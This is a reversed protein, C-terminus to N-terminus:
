HLDFLFLRCVSVLCRVSRTQMKGDPVGPHTNRCALLLLYELSEGLRITRGRPFYPPVPSPSVMHERSTSNIPPRMQTSLSGSCPLAKWKVRRRATWFVGPARGPGTWGSSNRSTGTSTTSSLKVLRCSRFAISLRHPIRGMATSPPRSARSARSNALCAPCGNEKTKNSQWMGSISPNATALCIRSLGSSFLVVSMISM